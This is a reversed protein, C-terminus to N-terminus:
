SSMGQVWALTVWDDGRKVITADRGGITEQVAQPDSIITAAMKPVERLSLASQPPDNPRSTGLLVGSTPSGTTTTQVIASSKVTPM